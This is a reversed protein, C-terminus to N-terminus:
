TSTQTIKRRRQWWRIPFYGAALSLLAFSSPEPVANANSFGAVRFGVDTGQNVPFSPPDAWVSRSLATQPSAWSGGRLIREATSDNNQLDVETEQWEWANGELGMVGFPSPGGANLVEAPGQLLQQNYVATNSLTGGGTAIPPVDLGNAFTSYTSNLPNFYAAKYWEDVSPLWYRANRHRFLNVGDVQWADALSWIQFDGNSDFNYAAQYGQSTNLWNVFRAAEFWSVGTAPRNPLNGGLLSLDFLTINLGAEVNAKEVMDRSIETTSIRYYYSVGGAPNPNGQNDDANGPNGITTFPIIFQNPGSGFIDFDGRGSLHAYLFVTIFSLFLSASSRM